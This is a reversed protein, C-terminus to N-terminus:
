WDRTAILEEIDADFGYSKSIFDFDMAINERAATEIESENEYFAEQLDNFKDTAKHTLVYLEELDKPKKTEIESCLTILIKKGKEVLFKPFCNDESMEKLFSYNKTKNNILDSQNKM